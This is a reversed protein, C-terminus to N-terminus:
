EAKRDLRVVYDVIQSLTRIDMAAKKDERALQAGLLIERPRHRMLADDCNIRPECEVGNLVLTKIGATADLKESTPFLAGGLGVIGADRIINRLESEDLNEYDPYCALELRRDEGDTEIV